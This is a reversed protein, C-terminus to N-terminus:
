VHNEIGLHQALEKGQAKITSYYDLQLNRFNSHNTPTYGKLNYSLELRGACTYKHFQHLIEGTTYKVITYQYVTLSETVMAVSNTAENKFYEM